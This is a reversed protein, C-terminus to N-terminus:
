QSYLFLIIIIIIIYCNITLSINSFIVSFM